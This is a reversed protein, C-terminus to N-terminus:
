RLIDCTKKDPSLLIPIDIASANDQDATVTVSFEREDHNSQNVEYEFSGKRGFEDQALGIYRKIAERAIKNICGFPREYIVPGASSNAAVCLKLGVVFFLFAILFSLRLM